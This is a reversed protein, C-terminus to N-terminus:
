YYIIESNQDMINYTMSYIYPHTQQNIINVYGCKQKGGKARQRGGPDVWDKVM